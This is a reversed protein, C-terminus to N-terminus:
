TAAVSVTRGAFSLTNVIQSRVSVTQQARLLACLKEIPPLYIIYSNEKAELLSLCHCSVDVEEGFDMSAVGSSEGFGDVNM